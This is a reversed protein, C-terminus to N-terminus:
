ERQVDSLMAARAFLGGEREREREIPKRTPMESPFRGDGAGQEIIIARSSFKKRADRAPM